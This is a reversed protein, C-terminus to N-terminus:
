DADGVAASRGHLAEVGAAADAEIALDGVRGVDLGGNAGVAHSTRRRDHGQARVCGTSAALELAGGGLDLEDGGSAGVGGRALRPIQEYVVGVVQPETLAQAGPHLDDSPM